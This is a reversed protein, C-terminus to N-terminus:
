FRRLSLAVPVLTGVPVPRGMNELVIQSASNPGHVWRLVFPARFTRSRGGPQNPLTANFTLTCKLRDSDWAQPDTVSATAVTVAGVRGLANQVYDPVKLQVVDNSTVEYLYLERSHQTAADTLAVVRGSPHWLAKVVKTADQYQFAGGSLSLESRTQGTRDDMIAVVYNSPSRSSTEIVRVEFRGDPSVGGPVVLTQGRATASRQSASEPPAHKLLTTQGAPVRFVVGTVFILGACVLLPPQHGTRGVARTIASRSDGSSARRSTAERM